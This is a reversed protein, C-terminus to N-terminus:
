MKSRQEDKDELYKLNDAKFRHGYDVNPNGALFCHSCMPLSKGGADVHQNVDHGCLCLLTVNEEPTGM